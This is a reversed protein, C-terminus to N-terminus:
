RCKHCTLREFWLLKNQNRLRQLDNSASPRDESSRRLIGNLKPAQGNDLFRRNAEPVCALSASFSLGYPTWRPM